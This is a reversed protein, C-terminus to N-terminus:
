TLTVSKWAGSVSNYVYLDNTDSDYYIAFGDTTSEGESPKKSTTGGRVFRNGESMHRMKVVGPLIMDQTIRRTKLADLEKKLKDVEKSLSLVTYDEMM